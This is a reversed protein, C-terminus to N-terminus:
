WNPFGMRAGWEAHERATREKEADTTVHAGGGLDNWRQGNLWNAALTGYEGSENPKLRPAQVKVASLIKKVLDPDREIEGANWVSLARLEDVQHPYLKWFATFGPPRPISRGREPKEDLWRKGNLYPAAGPCFDGGDKTWDHSVTQWALAEMIQDAAMECRNKVWAKWTTPKNGKRRTPFAKWFVEFAPSSFVEPRAPPAAVVTLVPPSVLVLPEAPLDM